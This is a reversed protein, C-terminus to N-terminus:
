ETKAPEPVKQRKYTLHLQPFKPLDNTEQLVINEFKLTKIESSLEQNDSTLKQIDNKMSQILANMEANAQPPPDGFCIACGGSIVAVSKDKQRSAGRFMM